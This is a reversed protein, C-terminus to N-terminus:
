PLFICTYFCKHVKDYSQHEVCFDGRGEGVVAGQGAVGM